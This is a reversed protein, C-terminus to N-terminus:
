DIPGQVPRGILSRYLDAEQRETKAGDFRSVFRPGEQGLERRASEDAVLRALAQGYGAPTNDVEVVRGQILDMGDRFIPKNIVVPLGSAMAELVPICVGPQSLHMAFVDHERMLQPITHHPVAPILRVRDRVGLKAVLEVLGAHLPGAGVMTLEVDLEAAARLINEPNKGVFQRGLNLIRPRGSLRYDTRPKFQDLYVRNLIVTRKDRAFRDVWRAAFPYACIVRSVRDFMPKNFVLLHFLQYLGRASRLYDTGYLTLNRLLSYDDHVSIVSPRNILKGALAALHGMYLPNYARIVDPDIQSILRTVNTTNQDFNWLRPRGLTHIYLDASGAMIQVKEPEIDEEALSVVHVESFLNEPNFYREKIEGKHHYKRMQDHPLVVLRPRKVARGRSIKPWESRPSFLLRRYLEVERQEMVEGDMAKARAQAQAGLRAALDPEALLKRFAVRFEDARNPVILGTDGLVEPLPQTDCAVVPLGSAMAELIPICFGEYHTSMAFVDARHYLKQIEAHTVAEIFEIRDAMGQRAARAELAARNEGQGVITLEARDLGALADIILGPSKQPDLRGVFLVRAPDHFGQAPPRFFQDTYVKNYITAVRRAGYRRAYNELFHSVCIVLDARGLSYHEFPKVLRYRWDKAMRRRQDNEIHLYVVVPVNIKRAAHVALAGGVWPNHARIMAPKITKILRSVRPFFPPLNTASVRGIPHIFLKADGVLAQVQSPDVDEDALTILHVRDFMRGPNYYGEKIEGKRLYASIPDNPIVALAPM